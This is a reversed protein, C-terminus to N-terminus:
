QALEADIEKMQAAFIAKIQAPVRKRNAIHWNIADRLIYYRCAMQKLHANEEELEALSRQREEGLTSMAKLYAQYDADRKFSRLTATV